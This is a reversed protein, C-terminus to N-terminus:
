NKIVNTYVKHNLITKPTSEDIIIKEESIEFIYKHSKVINYTFQMNRTWEEFQYVWKSTESFLNDSYGIVTNHSIKIVVNDENTM